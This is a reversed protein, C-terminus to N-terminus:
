EEGLTKSFNIWAVHRKFGLRENISLMPRNNSNNTTRLTTAGCARAYAISRLKLALAIGRRRHTRRVGTLGVWLHPGAESKWLASMGVWQGGDLAIFNADPLFNPNGVLTTRFHEFSPPSYPEPSPVDRELDSKMEYFKTLWDSDGRLDAITRIEVGGGVFWSEFDGFPAPDFTGVDLWSEWDRMDEVFGRKRLFAVAEPPDERTGSRLRIPDYRALSHFTAEYLASGVGQRRARPLVGIDVYFKRPHFGETFHAYTAFGVIEGNRRAVLRAFVKDAERHEDQFRIESLTTPNEPDIANQIELLAPYDEPVFSRIELIM